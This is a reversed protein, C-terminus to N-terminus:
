IMEWREPSLSSVKIASRETLVQAEKILVPDKDLLSLTLLYLRRREISFSILEESFLGLNIDKVRGDLYM